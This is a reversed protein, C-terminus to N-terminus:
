LDACQNVDMEQLNVGVRFIVVLLALRLRFRLKGWVNLCGEFIFIKLIPNIQGRLSVYHHIDTDNQAFYHSQQTRNGLLWLAAKSMYSM